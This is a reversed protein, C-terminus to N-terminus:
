NESRPPTGGSESIKKDLLERLLDGNGNALDSIVDQEVVEGNLVITPTGTAGIKSALARNRAIRRTVEDSIIDARFQDIDLGLDQAYDEFFSQRQDVNAASWSSQNGYLKDYMEWLQGQKGAAEFAAASALANPHIATLPFHRYVFAIDQEYEYAITKLPDAVSQCSPCQFDGYEILVVPSQPNGIVHDPYAGDTIVKAPDIDEVNTKNRQALVVLGGLVLACIVAFIIWRTKTM